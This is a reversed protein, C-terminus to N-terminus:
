HQSMPQIQDFPYLYGLASVYTPNSRIRGSGALDMSPSADGLQGLWSCGRILGPDTDFRAYSAGAAFVHM